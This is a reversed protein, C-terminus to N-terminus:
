CCDKPLHGYLVAVATKSCRADAQVSDVQSKLKLITKKAQRLKPM